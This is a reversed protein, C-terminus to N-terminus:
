VVSKRDAKTKTGLGDIATKIKASTNNATTTSDLSVIVKNNVADWTATPDGNQGAGTFEIKVGNFSDSNSGSGFAVTDGAAAGAQAAVITAPAAVVATKYTLTVATDDTATGTVTKNAVTEGAGGALATTPTGTGTVSQLQASLTADKFGKVTITDGLPATTSLKTQDITIGNVTNNSASVVGGLSGSAVWDKTGGTAAGSATATSSFGLLTASASDSGALDVKTASGTAVSTITLKDSAVSVKYKSSGLAKDIDSQLATVVKSENTKADYGTGLAAVSSLTVTAGNVKLSTATSM